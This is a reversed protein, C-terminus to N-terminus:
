SEVNELNEKMESKLNWEINAQEQIKKKDIM